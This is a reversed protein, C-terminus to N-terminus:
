KALSFELPQACGIGRSNLIGAIVVPIGGAGECQEIALKRDAAVSPLTQGNAYSSVIFLTAIALVILALLMQFYDRM